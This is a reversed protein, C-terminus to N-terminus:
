DYVSDKEKELISGTKADIKYDYEFNDYIFGVEFVEIGDDIDRHANLGQVQNATLGADSLSTEIAANEDVATQTAPAQTAPAQTAPAQTAPAQTAPAQTAPAVTSPAQTAPATTSTTNNNSACGALALVFLACLVVSLCVTFKKM